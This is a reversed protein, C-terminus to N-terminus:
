CCDVQEWAGLGQREGGSQEWSCGPRKSTRIRVRSEEEKESPALIEQWM